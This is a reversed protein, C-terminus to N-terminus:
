GLGRLLHQPQQFDMAPKVTPLLINLPAEYNSFFGTLRYASHLDSCQEMESKPNRIESKQLLINAPKLDRHIVGLGHAVHMARALTEVLEAATEARLPMHKLHEALSGGDVYELAVFPRGEHAGIDHIQVVNPHHLRAAAEAETRFRGLQEAGAHAGGLIMKLAVERKLSVQWARYVVGMGGRGLVARIEYGPLTPLEAPV